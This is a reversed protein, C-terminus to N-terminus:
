SVKGAALSIDQIRRSLERDVAVKSLVKQFSHIVTTHHIEFYRGIEPFSSNTMQRIIYIAIQRPWVVSQVNTRKLLEGFRLGFSKEVEEQIRESLQRIQLPSLTRRPVKSSFTESAWHILREADNHVRELLRRVDNLREGDLRVARMDEIQVRCEECFNPLLTNIDSVRVFLEDAM